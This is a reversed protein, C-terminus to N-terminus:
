NCTKTQWARLPTWSSILILSINAGKEAFQVAPITKNQIGMRVTGVTLGTTASFEKIDLIRKM